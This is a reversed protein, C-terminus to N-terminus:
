YSSIVMFCKDCKSFKENIDYYFQINLNGRMATAELILCSLDLVYEFPVTALLAASSFASGLLPMQRLLTRYISPPLSLYPQSASFWLIVQFDVFLLTVRARVMLVNTPLCNHM